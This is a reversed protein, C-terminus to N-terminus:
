SYTTNNTSSGRAETAAPRLRALASSPLWPIWQDTPIQKKAKHLFFFSFCFCCPYTSCLSSYSIGLLAHATVSEPQIVSPVHPTDTRARKTARCKTEGGSWIEWLIEGSFARDSEVTGHQYSYNLSESHGGSTETQLMPNLGILRANPRLFFQCWM